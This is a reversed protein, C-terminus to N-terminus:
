RLDVEATATFSVRDAYARVLTLGLRFGTGWPRTHPDADPVARQIASIVAYDAAMTLEFGLLGGGFVVANIILAAVANQLRARREGEIRHQEAFGVAATLHESLLEGIGSEVGIGQVLPDPAPLTAQVVNLLIREDDLTLDM